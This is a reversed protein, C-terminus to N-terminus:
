HKTHLPEASVLFRLTVLSCLSFRGNLRSEFARRVTHTYTNTYAHAATAHTSLEGGKKLLLCGVSRARACVCVTFALSSYARVRM